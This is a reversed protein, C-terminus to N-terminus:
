HALSEDTLAQPATALYISTHGVTQEQTVPQSPEAMLDLVACAVDCAPVSLELVDIPKSDEMAFVPNNELATLAACVELQGGAAQINNLLVEAMLKVVLPLERGSAALKTELKEWGERLDYGHPIILLCGEDSKTISDPNQPLIETKM